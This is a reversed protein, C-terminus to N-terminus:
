GYVEGAMELMAASLARVQEELTPLQTIPLDAATRETGDDDIIKFATMDSVGSYAHKCWVLNGFADEDRLVCQLSDPGTRTISKCDWQSHHFQLKM